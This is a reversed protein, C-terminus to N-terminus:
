KFYCEVAHAIQLWRDGSSDLLPLDPQLRIIQELILESCHDPDVDEGALLSLWAFLTTLM